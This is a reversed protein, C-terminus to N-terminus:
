TRGTPSEVHELHPRDLDAAVGNSARAHTESRVSPRIVQSQGAQARVWTRSM